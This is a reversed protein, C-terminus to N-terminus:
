SGPDARARGATRASRSDRARTAAPSRCRSRCRLGRGRSRTRRAAAVAALADRLDHGVARHGRAGDDAVDAAREAHRVAVHVPDRLQDRELDADREVLRMASSSSSRARRDLVVVLDAPQDIERPLEFAERAVDARVRAADHDRRLGSVSYMGSYAASVPASSVCSSLSSRSAIPRMLNSKRPSFVSVTMSLASAAILRSRAARPSGGTSM